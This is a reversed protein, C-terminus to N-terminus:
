EPDEGTLPQSARPSDEPGGPDGQKIKLFERVAAAIVLIMALTFITAMVWEVGDTQAGM